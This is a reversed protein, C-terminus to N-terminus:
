HIIINFHFYYFAEKKIIFVTKLNTSLKVLDVTVIDGQNLGGVDHKLEVRFPCKLEIVKNLYTVVLISYPSAYKLLEAMQKKNM